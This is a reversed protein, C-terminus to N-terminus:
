KRINDNILNQIPTPWLKINDKDYFKSWMTWGFNNIHHIWSTMSLLTFCKIFSKISHRKEENTNQIFDCAIEDETFDCLLIPRDSRYKKNFYYLYTPFDLPVQFAETNSNFYISNENERLVYEKKLMNEKIYDQLNSHILYSIWKSYRGGILNIPKSMLRPSTSSNM